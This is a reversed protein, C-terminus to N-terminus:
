QDSDDHYLKAVLLGINKHPPVYDVFYAYAKKDKILQKDLTEWLEKWNIDKEELLNTSIVHADPSKMQVDFIESYGGCSGLIALKIDPTVNTLSNSLHYSHGRHIIIHPTLNNAALYQKLTDQAARDLDQLYELPLNAYVSIPYQKKSHFAIWQSTKETTWTNVDKFDSLFSQFSAKGDDDGYFYVQQIIRGSTDRLSKHSLTLYETLKRSISEGNDKDENKVATFIEILLRYLKQGYFNGARKCRELNEALQVDMFDSLEKEKILSPFTEAVTMAEQLGEDTNIELGYVLRTMIATMTDKPMNSLFDNLTNYRGALRIFNRYGAYNALRLVSDYNGKKFKSTLRKYTYLYSSTYFNDEGYIIVAYLYITRLQNLEGFRINEKAEEHRNNMVNVFFKNAYEKLFARMPILYPPNGGQDREQLLKMGEDVMLQFYKTPEARLLNITDYSLEERMIPVAFPLYNNVRSEPSMKLLTQVLPFQNDKIKQVLEQNASSKVFKVLSVPARNAWIYILSDTFHYDKNTTLWGPIRDPSYRATKLIAMDRLRPGEPFDKLSIAIIKSKKPSLSTMEADYPLQHRVNDWIILYKNRLDRMQYVEYGNSIIEYHFADLFSAHANLALLSEAPKTNSENALVQQISDTQIKIFKLMLDKVGPDMTKASITGAFNIQTQDIRNNTQRIQETIDQANSTLQSCLFICLLFPRLKSNLIKM